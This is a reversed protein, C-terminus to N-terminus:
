QDWSIGLKKAKNISIWEFGSDEAEKKSMEIYEKITTGEEDVYENVALVVHTDELEDDGIIEVKTNTIAKEILKSWDSSFTLIQKALIQGKLKRGTVPDSCASPESLKDCADYKKAGKDKDGLKYKIGSYLTDNFDMTIGLACAKKYYEFHADNEFSMSIGESHAEPSLGVFCDDKDTMIKPNELSKEGRYATVLQLPRSKDSVHLPINRKISLDDNFNKQISDIVNTQNASYFRNDVIHGGSGKSPQIVRSTREKYQREAKMIM